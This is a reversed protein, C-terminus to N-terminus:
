AILIRLLFTIFWSLRGNSLGFLVLTVKSIDYWILSLLVLSPLPRLNNCFVAGLLSNKTIISKIGLEKVGPGVIFNM